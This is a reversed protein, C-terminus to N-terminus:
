RFILLIVLGLLDQQRKAGDASMSGAYFNSDNALIGVSYGNIRAFGTIIGRGFFKTMEFFSAEDFVYKIIDRMEYSKKRDKPVISLLEEQERNIPDESLKREPIEYINQPFFELFQRIQKFADTEDEAINDTVGNQSHIKSGGLEEKTM